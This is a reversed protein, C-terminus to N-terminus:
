PKRCKPKSVRPKKPPVEALPKGDVRLWPIAGYDGFKPLETKTVKQEKRKRSAV